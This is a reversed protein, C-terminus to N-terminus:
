QLPRLDPFTGYPGLTGLAPRLPFRGTVLSAPLEVAHAPFRRLIGLTIHPSFADGIGTLPRGGVTGAFRAVAAHAADLERDRFAELGAYIGGEPVHFDGPPIPSFALRGLRVWIVPPLVEAASKWWRHAAEVTCDMHLLTLHPPAAPNLTMLPESGAGVHAAYEVLRGATEPEPLLVIGYPM